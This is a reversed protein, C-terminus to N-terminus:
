IGKILCICDLLDKGICFGNILRFVKRYFDNYDNLLVYYDRFFNGVIM